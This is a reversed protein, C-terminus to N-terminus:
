ASTRHLYRKRQCRRRIDRFIRRVNDKYQVTGSTHCAFCHVVKFPAFAKISMITFAVPPVFSISFPLRIPITLKASEATCFVPRIVDATSKFFATLASVAPPGCFWASAKSFAAARRLECAFPLAFTITINVSPRVVAPASRRRRRLRCLSLTNYYVTDTKRSLVAHVRGCQIKPSSRCCFMDKYSGIRFIQLGKSVSASFCIDLGPAVFITMSSVSFLSKLIKPM